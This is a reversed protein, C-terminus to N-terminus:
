SGPIKVNATRRQSPTLELNDYGTEGSEFSKIKGGGSLFKKIDDSIVSSKEESTLAEKEEGKKM